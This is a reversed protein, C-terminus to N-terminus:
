SVVGVSASIPDLALREIRLYCRRAISLDAGLDQQSGLVYVRVSRSGYARAGPPWYVVEVVDGVVDALPGLPDVMGFCGREDSIVTGYWSVSYVGRPVSAGVFLRQADLFAQRGDLVPPEPGLM